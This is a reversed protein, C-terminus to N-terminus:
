TTRFTNFRHFDYHPSFATVLCSRKKVGGERTRTASGVVSEAGLKTKAGVKCIIADEEKFGYACGDPYRERQKTFGM